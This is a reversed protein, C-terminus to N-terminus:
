KISRVSGTMPRRKNPNGPNLMLSTIGWVMADMRDPSPMAVHKGGQVHERDDTYTCMQDEMVGFMGHHKVKGQEYLAAVPGARRIKGRSARVQRVPLNRFATRLNSEVLDGGNNVEAVVRDAEWKHYLQAVKQAWENPTYRGSADELVYGIDNVGLGCVVIGTEDSDEHSTTAPDVAVVIKRFHPITGVRNQEILDYTWLAGPMDLLIEGHLEQRGTRTGEYKKLVRKIYKPSLNSINEYSSGFTVACDPDDVLTKIIPIPRPTTTVVVQTDNGLRLAFELNDWTDQAYRMKALEDCWAKHFQPGRLQDPDEGSFLIGISGNPWTVRRKSPEYEPRNWPPSIALLGSEGEVLVDRADAATEAILAVQIAPDTPGGVWERVQEAGTRSKGFGRGSLILWVVWEWSPATQKPRRWWSWDYVLEERDVGRLYEEQEEVPLEALVEALSQETALLLDSM